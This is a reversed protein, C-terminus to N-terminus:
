STPPLGGVDYGLATRSLREVEALGARMGELDGTLEALRTTTLMGGGTTAHLALLEAVRTVLGELGLAASQMRALLTERADALRRAVELQDAVARLAREREERLPGAPLGPLGRQIATHDHRLREGPITAITQELLTVEGAFRRLDALVGAAQDDVDGIQGRLTQDRPSETQRRLTDVAREARRLWREADSGRPPVPLRPDSESAPSPRTGSDTLVGLGVRVAYVVGAVGLGVPVGVLLGAPALAGTVAAGLGGLLGAAVIGWPETLHQRM